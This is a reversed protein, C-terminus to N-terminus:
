GAGALLKRAAEICPTLRETHSVGAKAKALMPVELGVIVDKPLAAVFDALPLDGDGPCLREDRAEFGYNAMDGPMPVDCIQAYGILAPDIRALDAASSGSRFFHMADVLVKANAAGSETVISLAEDINAPGVIPMFELTVDMGREGAMTALRGFEETARARDSEVCMVNVRPTGLEVMVDLAPASAAIEMGPMILFGEGLTVQVDNDKMAAVTDRLLAPNELMSWPEYNCPNEVIPQAAMGINRVGLGAALKVFEVPHLGFVCIFEIALRDM